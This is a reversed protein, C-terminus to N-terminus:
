KRSLVQADNTGMAANESVSSSCGLMAPFWVIDCLGHNCSTECRGCGGISSNEEEVRMSDALAQGRV